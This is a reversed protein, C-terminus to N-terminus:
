PCGHRRQCPGSTICVRLSLMTAKETHSCDPQSCRLTLGASDDLTDRLLPTYTQKLQM